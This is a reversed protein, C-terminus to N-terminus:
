IGINEENDVEGWMHMHADRDSLMLDASMDYYAHEGTDPCWMYHLTHGSMAQFPHETGGCAPVWQNHKYAM